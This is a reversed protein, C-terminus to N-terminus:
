MPLQSEAKGDRRMSSAQCPTGIIYVPLLSDERQDVKYAICTVLLMHFPSDLTIWPHLQMAALWLVKTHRSAHNDGYESSALAWVGRPISPVDLTQRHPKACRLKQMGKQEEELECAEAELWHM